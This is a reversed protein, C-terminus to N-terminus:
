EQYWCPIRPDSSLPLFGYFHEAWASGNRSFTHVSEFRRTLASSRTVSTGRSTLRGYKYVVSPIQTTLQIRLTMTCSGDINRSSSIGFQRTIGWCRTETIHSTNTTKSNCNLFFSFSPLFYTPFSIFFASDCHRSSSVADRSSEM